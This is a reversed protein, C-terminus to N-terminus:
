SCYWETSEGYSTGASDHYSVGIVIYPTGAPCLFKVSSRDDGNPYAVANLTWRENSFTSGNTGGGSLDCIPWRMTGRCELNLPGGAAPEATAVTGAVVVGTLLSAATLLLRNM